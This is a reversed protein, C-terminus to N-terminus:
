QKPQETKNMTNCSFLSLFPLSTQCLEIYSHFYWSSKPDLFYLSITKDKRSLLSIKVKNWSMQLATHTRPISGNILDKFLLNWFEARYLTLLFRSKYSQNKCNHFYSYWTTKRHCLKNVLSKHTPIPCQLAWEISFLMCIVHITGAAPILYALSANSNDTVESILICLLLHM